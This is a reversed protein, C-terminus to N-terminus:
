RSGAEAALKVAVVNRRELKSSGREETAARHTIEYRPWKAARATMSPFNASVVFLPKYCIPSPMLLNHV